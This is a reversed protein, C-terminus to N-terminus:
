LVDEAQYKAPLLPFIAALVAVAEVAITAMLELAAAAVVQL